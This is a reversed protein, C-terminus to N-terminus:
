LLGRMIQDHLQTNHRWIGTARALDDKMAPTKKAYRHLRQMDKLARDARLFATRAMQLRDTDTLPKAVEPAVWRCPVDYRKAIGDQKIQDTLVATM